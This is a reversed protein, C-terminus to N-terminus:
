FSFLNKSPFCCIRRTRNRYSYHERGGMVRLSIGASYHIPDFDTPRLRVSCGVKLRRPSRAASGGSFVEVARGCPRSVRWASRFITACVGSGSFVEWTPRSWSRPLRPRPRPCQPREQPWVQVNGVHRLFPGPPFAQTLAANRHAAFRDHAKVRAAGPRHHIRPSGYNHRQLGKKALTWLKQM